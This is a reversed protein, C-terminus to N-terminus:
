SIWAEFTPFIPRGNDAMMTESDVTDPGDKRQVGNWDEHVTAGDIVAYRAKMAM